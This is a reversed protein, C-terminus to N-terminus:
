IVGMYIYIHIYFLYRFCTKFEVAIMAATRRVRNHLAAVATIFGTFVPCVNSLQGVRFLAVLCNRGERLLLCTQRSLHEVTFSSCFCIVYHLVFFVNTLCNDINCMDIETETVTSHTTSSADPMICNDVFTRILLM